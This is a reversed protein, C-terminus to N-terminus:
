TTVSPELEAITEVEDTLASTLTSLLRAIEDADWEHSAIRDVVDFMPGCLRDRTAEYDSLATPLDARRASGTPSPM